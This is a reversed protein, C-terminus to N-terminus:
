GYVIDNFLAYQFINDASGGDLDEIVSLRKSLEVHKAIGKLLKELTMEWKETENFNNETDYFWVSKNNLLLDAVFESLSQGKPEKYYNDFDKGENILCAWYRIGGELATIVIDKINDQTIKLDFSLKINM